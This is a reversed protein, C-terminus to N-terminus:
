VIGIVIKYNRGLANTEDLTIGSTSLVYDMNVWAGSSNDRQCNLVVINDKTTNIPYPIRVGTQVVGNFYLIERISQMDPSINNLLSFEGVCGPREDLITNSIVGNGRIFITNGIVNNIVTNNVLGSYGTSTDCVIVRGENCKLIVNDISLNNINKDTEIQLRIGHVPLTGTINSITINNFDGGQQQLYIGTFPKYDVINSIGERFSIGKIQINENVILDTQENRIYIGTIRGLEIMCNNIEINKCGAQIKMSRQSYGLSLGYPKIYHRHNEVTINNSNFIQIGHECNTTTCNTIAVNSTGSECTFGNYGNIASCNKIVCMANDNAHIYVNHGTAIDEITTSPNYSQEGIFVLGDLTVNKHEVVLTSVRNSVNSSPTSTNKIVSNMGKIYQGDMGTRLTKTTEIEFVNPIFVMKKTNLITQLDDSKKVIYWNNNIDDNIQSLQANTEDIRDNVKKLASQNLLTDFTGDQVWVDFINEIELHLGEGLLYQINENQTKLMEQVDTEFRWVEDVLENVKNAIKVVLQAITYQCMDEVTILGMRKALERINKEKMTYGGTM